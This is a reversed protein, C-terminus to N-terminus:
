AEVTFLVGGTVQFTASFTVATNHDAGKSLASIWVDGRVIDTADNVGVMKMPFTTGLQWLGSLTKFSAQTPTGTENIANGDGKFSSSKSGAMSTDEKGSCKTTTDISATSGDWSNTKLCALPVWAPTTGIKAFLIVDTGNKFAEGAM